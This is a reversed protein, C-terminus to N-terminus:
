INESKLTYTIKNVEVKTGPEVMFILNYARETSLIMEIFCTDICKNNFPGSVFEQNAALSLESQWEITGQSELLLLVEEQSPEAAYAVAMGTVAPLGQEKQRINKYILYEQGSDEIYIEVSGGGMINGSMRLSSVAVPEQNTTRLSFIQSQEIAMNITQSKFDASFHGTIGPTKFLFLTSMLLLSVALAIEMKKLKNKTEDKM